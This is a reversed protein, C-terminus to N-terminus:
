FMHKAYNLGLAEYRKRFINMRKEFNKWNKNKEPTWLVESLASMRPLIM